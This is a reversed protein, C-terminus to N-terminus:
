RKCSKADAVLKQTDAQLQATSIGSLSNMVALLDNSITNIESNTIGTSLVVQNLDNSLVLKEIPTITSGGPGSASTAASLDTLFQQVLQQDPPNLGPMITQLELALAQVAQPFGQANAQGAIAALDNGIAQTDTSLTTKCAGSQCFATSATALTLTLLITKM